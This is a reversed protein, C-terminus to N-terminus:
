IIYNNDNYSSSFDNPNMSNASAYPTINSLELKRVRRELRNIQRGLNNLKNNINRIENSYNCQQNPQNPFFNGPNNPFFGFPPQENM